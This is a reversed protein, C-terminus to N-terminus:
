SAGVFLLAMLAWCCGICYLGHQLGLRLAGAAHRQFGGHQQM